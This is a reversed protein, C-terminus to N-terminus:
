ENAGGESSARKRSIAWAIISLGVMGIVIAAPIALVAGAVGGLIGLNEYGLYAGLAVVFVYSLFVKVQEITPTM